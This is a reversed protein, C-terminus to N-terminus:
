IKGEILLSMKTNLEVLQSNISQLLTDTSNQRKEIREINKENNAIKNQLVGFTVGWGTLTVIVSFIFPLNIKNDM